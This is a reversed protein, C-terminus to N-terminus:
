AEKQHARYGAKQCLQELRAGRADTGAANPATLSAFSLNTHSERSLAPQRTRQQGAAQQCCRSGHRRR